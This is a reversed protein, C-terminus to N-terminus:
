NTDINYQLMIKYTQEQLNSCMMALKNATLGKTYTLCHEILSLFGATLFSNFLSLTTDSMTHDKPVVERIMNDFVFKKFSSAITGNHLLFLIEKKNAFLKDMNAILKDTTSNDGGYIPVAYITDIEDILDYINGYYSYFTTRSIGSLDCLKSVSMDYADHPCNDIITQRFIEKNRAIRNDM